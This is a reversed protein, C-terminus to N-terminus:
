LPSSLHEKHFIGMDMEITRKKVLVMKNILNETIAGGEMQEDFGSRMWTGTRDTACTRLLEMRGAATRDLRERNCAVLGKQM